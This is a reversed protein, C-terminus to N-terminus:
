WKRLLSHLVSSVRKKSPRAHPWLALSLFAYELFQFSPLPHSQPLFVLSLFAAGLSHFLLENDVYLEPCAPEQVAQSSSYFLGSASPYPNWHSGLRTGKWLMDEIAKWQGGPGAAWSLGGVEPGIGSRDEGHRLQVQLARTPTGEGRRGEECWEWQQGTRSQGPLGWHWRSEGSLSSEMWLRQKEACTWQVSVMFVASHGPFPLLIHQCTLDLAKALIDWGFYPLPPSCRIAAPSYHVHFRIPTRTRCSLVFPFTNTDTFLM